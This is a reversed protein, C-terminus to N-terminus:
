GNARFPKTLFTLLASGGMKDKNGVIPDPSGYSSFYHNPLNSRQIHRSIFVLVYCSFCDSEKEDEKKCSNDLNMTSSYLSFHAKEPWFRDGTKALAFICIKQFYFSKRTNKKPFRQLM